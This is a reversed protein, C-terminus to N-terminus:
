LRARLTAQVSVPPSSVRHILGDADIESGGVRDHCVDIGLAPGDDQGITDARRGSRRDDAQPLALHEDALLRLLQLRGALGLHRREKFALHPDRVEDEMGLRAIVRRDLERGEQEGCQLLVGFPREASRDGMGHDGDGSVEAVGLPLCREFGAPPGPELNQLDDILGGGRGDGVAHLSGVPVLGQQDIVEAAAGEVDGEEVEIRALDADESRLSIVLEAALIPVVADDLEEGAAELRLEAAIRQLIQLAAGVQEDAGLLHFLPEGGRLASGDRQNMAAVTSAVVEVPRREFLNRGVQHLPRDPESELNELVLAELARLDVAHEQDAARGAHRHDRREDLSREAPRRHGPDVDVLGYGQASGLDGGFAAVLQSRRLGPEGQAAGQAGHVHGIVTQAHDGDVFIARREEVAEDQRLVCRDGAPLGPGVLVSRPAGAVVRELHVHGLALRFRWAVDGVEALVHERVNRVDRV